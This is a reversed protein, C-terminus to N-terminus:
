FPYPNTIIRLCIARPRSYQTLFGFTVPVFGPFPLGDDDDDEHDDEEEQDDQCNPCEDNDEDYAADEDYAEPEDEEAVDELDEDLDEDDYEDGERDSHEAVEPASADADDGGGGEGRETWRRDM